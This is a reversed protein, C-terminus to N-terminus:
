KAIRESLIANLRALNRPPDCLERARAPGAAGLAACRMPDTILEALAVAVAAPTPEVLVGCSDDIVEVAGGMRTAVVPLSAAMGDVFALGFSEPATNPHCVIDAAALLRPVDCRQGLFRVRDAIGLDATLRQLRGLYAVEGPRQAGGALWCVWDPLAKLKGLAELHLQQGKLPEMRSAQLIARAGPPTDFEARVARRLEPTPDIPEFRYPCYVVEVPVDRFLLGVSEATFCSNAIVLDPRCHRAWRQDFGRGDLRQHLWFVLSKGARRAAPGFV